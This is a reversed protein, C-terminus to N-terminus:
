QAIHQWFAPLYEDLPQGSAHGRSEWAQFCSVMMRLHIVIMAAKSITDAVADMAAGGM